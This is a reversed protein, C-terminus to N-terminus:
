ERVADSLPIVWTAVQNLQDNPTLEYIELTLDDTENNLIFGIYFFDYSNKAIKKYLTQRQNNPSLRDNNQYARFFVKEDIRTEFPSDNKFYLNMYITTYDAPIWASKGSEVDFDLKTQSIKITSASPIYRIYYDQGIPITQFYDSTNTNSSQPTSHLLGLQEKLDNIEEQLAVCDCTQAHIASVSIFLIFVSMLLTYKKM